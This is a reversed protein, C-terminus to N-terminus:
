EETEEHRQRRTRFFGEFSPDEEMLLRAYFARYNNNLKFPDGTTEVNMHWRLREFVAGAGFNKFGRKKAMNAYTKFLEYVHPNNAHYDLFKQTLNAM